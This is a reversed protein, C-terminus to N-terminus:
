EYNGSNERRDSANNVGQKALPKDKPVQALGRENRGKRSRWQLAAGNPYDPGGSM